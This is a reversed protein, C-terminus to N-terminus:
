KTVIRADKMGTEVIARLAQDAEHREDFPGVRVRYWAKGSISSPIVRVPGLEAFSEGLREAFDRNNFSAAQIFHRGSRRKAALLATGSTSWRTVATDTETGKPISGVVMTDAVIESEVAAVLMRSNSKTHTPNLNAHRTWSRSAYVRRELSDDGNLPAPGLYQVRVKSTGARGYGLAHASARSLDIIRDHAYPGRDNVRLVLSRGNSLNTVKAYSPLPMTPHAATLADMDFIEGNATYRGHFLDGYWSGIGVKNYGPEERPTYWRGAIKYPSGVKYRGGGKPVPQGYQVVRKSLGEDNAVRKGPRRSCASLALACALVITFSILIFRNFTQFPRAADPGQGQRASLRAPYRVISLIKDGASRLVQLRLCSGSEGLRAVPERLPHSKM